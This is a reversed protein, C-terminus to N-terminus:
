VRRVYFYISRSLISSGVCPAEIRQEVSQAISGLRDPRSEFGRGGAHCAPMRVLQVVLGM